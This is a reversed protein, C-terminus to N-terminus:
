ASEQSRVRGLWRVGLVLAIILVATELWGSFFWLCVDFAYAKYYADIGNGLRIGPWHLVVWEYGLLKTYWPADDAIGVDLPPMCVFFNVLEIPLATGMAVLAARKTGTM